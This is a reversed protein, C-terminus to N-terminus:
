CGCGRREVLRQRRRAERDSLHLVDGVYELGHQNSDLAITQEGDGLTEDLGNLRDIEHGDRRRENPPQESEGRNNYTCICEHDNIKDRIM